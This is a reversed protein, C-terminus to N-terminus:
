RGDKYGVAGIRRFEAQCASCEEHDDDFLSVDNWVECEPCQLIGQDSRLLAILDFTTGRLDAALAKLRGNTILM